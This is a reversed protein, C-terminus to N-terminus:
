KLEFMVNVEAHISLEGSMVPAASSADMSATRMMMPVPRGSSVNESIALVSGLKVGLEKALVEARARADAAAKTLADRELDRQKSAEYQLSGFNSAGAAVAKDLFDGVKDMLKGKFVVSFDNTANYAIIPAPQIQKSYDYVPSVNVRSTQVNKEEVGLNKLLSLVEQTKGSASRMAASATQLQVNVQVSLRVQDPSTTVIGEGGVNVTRPKDSPQAFASVSVLLFLVVPLKM